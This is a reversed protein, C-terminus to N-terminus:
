SESRAPKAPVAPFEVVLCPSASVTRHFSEATLQLVGM